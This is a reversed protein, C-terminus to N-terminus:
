KLEQLIVKFPAGEKKGLGREGFILFAEAIKKRLLNFLKEETKEKIYVETRSKIIIHYIEGSFYFFYDKEPRDIYKKPARFLYSDIERDIAWRLGLKEHFRGSRKALMGSKEKDFRADSVIRKHINIDVNEIIYTM